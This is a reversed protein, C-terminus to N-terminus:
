FEEWEGDTAVPANAVRKPPNVNVAPRRANRTGAAIPVTRTGAVPSSRRAAALPAAVNAYVGGTKFVSIVQVLNGAQDQLSAAAAAAEEVLAANQQTVQDMQMIAQNIQEIGSTQEQSASTIEGMIDTVRKVSAVIEEMTVGAQDVLKTGTDVKDVSDDILTKIERAAAASRQALNRVETAVVAFGRGQEGARAAEVAANLALINTQFAISDIVSIIEVIKKSSANISSMTDVVQTVVGGGKLAVESASQALQNAQRAHEANQKVTSTLEEMSSATEELASAQQETRSSLDMNGAAIQSSATAITGTGIRVQDVILAISDRMAKIAYLMSTRDGAKMDISLALDGAAIRNAIDVVYSPEGGLQKKISRTITLAVVIGLLTAAAGLLILLLASAHSQEKAMTTMKIISQEQYNSLKKINAVYNALAPELKTQILSRANEANSAKEKFIEKRAAIYIARKKGIQSLLETEEASKQFVDLKKQIETIKKSTEKIKVQVQQQRVLDNSEAVAIARSGNMDTNAAWESFLREKQMVDDVMTTVTGSISQLRWSGIGAILVLLILVVSFGIALRTGIKIDTIKM